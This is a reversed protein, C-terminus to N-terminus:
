VRSVAMQFGVLVRSVFDGSASGNSARLVDDETALGDDRTAGDNPSIEPPSAWTM